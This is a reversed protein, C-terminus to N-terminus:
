VEIEIFTGSTDLQWMTEFGATYAITCPPYKDVLLELDDESEIMVSPVGPNKYVVGNKVYDGSSEVTPIIGTIVM